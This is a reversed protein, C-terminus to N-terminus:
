KNSKHHCLNIMRSATRALETFSFPKVLYATKHREFFTRDLLSTSTSFVVVPIKSLRTDSKIAIFAQKGDMKPMNVDLVILCPLRKQELLKTLTAMGELGNYAEIISHDADIAKLAEQLLELDDKDDDILIVTKEIVM